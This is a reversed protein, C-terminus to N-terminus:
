MRPRWFKLSRRGKTLDVIGLVVEIGEDLLRFMRNNVVEKV